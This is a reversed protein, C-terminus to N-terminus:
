APTIAPRTSETTATTQASQRRAADRLRLLEAAVAIAVTRPEKGVVGEIGIPCRLGAIQEPTFGKRALRGEFTKRKTDSGIVGVYRCDGRRLLKELIQLDLDHSHTMVLAYANPPLDKVEDAPADALISTVERLTDDPFQEPRSDIWRITAGTGALVQVIEKGVHGAGFLAVFFDTPAFPEFLITVKGGCCQGLAPGLAFTELRTEGAHEAIMARAIETAKLELHGGGISGILNKESVVFKTGAPRPASGKLEAITVLVCREGQAQLSALAELWPLSPTM